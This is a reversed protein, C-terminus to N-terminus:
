LLNLLERCASDLQTETAMPMQFSVVERLSYRFEDRATAFEHHLKAVDIGWKAAIERIPMGEQFRLRLLEVRRIALEGSEVAM